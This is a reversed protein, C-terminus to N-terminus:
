RSLALQQLSGIAMIEVEFNHVIVYLVGYSGQLLGYVFDARRRLPHGDTPDVSVRPRWWAIPTCWSVHLLFELLGGGCKHTHTFDDHVMIM